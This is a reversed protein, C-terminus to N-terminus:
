RRRIGVIGRPHYEGDRLREDPCSPLDRSSSTERRGIVWEKMPPVTGDRHHHALLILHSSLYCFLLCFGQLALDLGLVAGRAIETLVGSLHACRM